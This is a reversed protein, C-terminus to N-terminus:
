YFIGDRWPWTFSLRIPFPFGGCRRKEKGLKQLVVELNRAQKDTLPFGLPTCPGYSKLSTTMM